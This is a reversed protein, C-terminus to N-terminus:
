TTAANEETLWWAFSGMVSKLRACHSMSHGQVQLYAPYSELATKTLERLASFPGSNGRRQGLWRLFHRLERHYTDVATDAKGALSAM